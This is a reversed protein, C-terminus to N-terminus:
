PRDIGIVKLMCWIHNLHSILKLYSIHDLLHTTISYVLIGAVACNFIAIKKPFFLGTNEWFLGMNRANEWYKGFVPLSAGFDQGRYEWIKGFQPIKNEQFCSFKGM